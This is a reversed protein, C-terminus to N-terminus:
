SEQGVSINLKMLRNWYKLTSSQREPRRTNFNDPHEQAATDASQVELQGRSRVSSTWHTSPSLSACILSRREGGVSLLGPSDNDCSISASWGLHVANGQTNSNVFYLLQDTVSEVSLDVPYGSCTAFRLPGAVPPARCWQCTKVGWWDASAEATWDPGSSSCGYWRGTLWGASLLLSWLWPSVWLFWGTLHSSPGSSCCHLLTYFNEIWSNKKQRCIQSCLCNLFFLVCVVINLSLIYCLFSLTM